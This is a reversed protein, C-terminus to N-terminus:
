ELQTDTLNIEDLELKAQPTELVKRDDWTGKDSILGIPYM